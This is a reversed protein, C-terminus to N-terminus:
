DKVAVRCVPKHCIGCELSLFGDWYSVYVPGKHCKGTLEPQMETNFPVQCCPCSGKAMMDLEARTIAPYDNTKM